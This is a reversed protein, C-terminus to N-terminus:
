WEKKRSLFFFFIVFIITLIGSFISIVVYNKGIYYFIDKENSYKMDNRYNNSSSTNDNFIISDGKDVYDNNKSISAIVYIGVLLLVAFIIILIVKKGM